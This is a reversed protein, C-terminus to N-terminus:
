GAPLLAWVGIPDHGFMAVMDACVSAFALVLAPLIWISGMRDRIARSSVAPSMRLSRARGRARRAHDAGRALVRSARDLQAGASDPLARGPDRGGRPGVLVPRVARRLLPEEPRGRARDTPTSADGTPARRRPHGALAHRHRGSRRRIPARRERDAGNP